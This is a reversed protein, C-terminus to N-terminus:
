KTSPLPGFPLLISVLKEEYAGTSRLDPDKRTAYTELLSDLLDSGELLLTILPKDAQFTKNRILGFMDEIKHAISSLKEFGMLASSSKISHSLRFIENIIEPNAPDQELRILNYNLGSILDGAEQRFSTLLKDPFDM